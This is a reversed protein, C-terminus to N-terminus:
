ASRWLIFMRTDAAVTSLNGGSNQRGFLQITDGATMRLHMLGTFATNAQGQGSGMVYTTTVSSVVAKIQTYYSANSSNSWGVQAGILYTGAVPATWTTGSSYASYNDQGAAPTFGTMLTDTGTAIGSQASGQVVRCFPVFSLFRVANRIETNFNGTTGGSGTSACLDNAAWTRPSPPALGATGTTTAAWSLNLFPHRNGANVLNVTGGTNQFGALAVTDGANLFLLDAVLPCCTASAASPFKSGTTFTGSNVDLLAQFNSTTSGANFPVGGIALWVGGCGAPVTYKKFNVDGFANYSDWLQTELVVDTDAGSPINGGTSLQQGSFAPPFTLFSVAESLQDNLDDVWVQSDARLPWTAPAPEAPLDTM